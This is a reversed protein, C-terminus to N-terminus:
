IKISTPSLHQISPSSHLSAFPCICTRACYFHKPICILANPISLFWIFQHGFMESPTAFIRCAMCPYYWINPTHSSKHLFINLSTIYYRSYSQICLPTHRCIHLPKSLMNYCMILHHWINPSTNIHSVHVHSLINPSPPCTHLVNWLKLIYLHQLHRFPASSRWLAYAYFYKFNHIWMHLVLTCEDNIM